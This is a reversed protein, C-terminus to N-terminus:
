KVYNIEIRLIKKNKSIFIKILLCFRNDHDKFKKLM